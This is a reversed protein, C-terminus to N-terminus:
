LNSLNLIKKLCNKLKYVSTAIKQSNKMGSTCNLGRTFILTQLKVGDM